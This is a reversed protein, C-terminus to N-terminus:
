SQNICEMINKLNPKSSQTLTHYHCSLNKKVKPKFCKFKFNSYALMFIQIHQWGLLFIVFM